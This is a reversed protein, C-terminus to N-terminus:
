EAAITPEIELFPIAAQAMVLEEDTKITLVSFGNLFTLKAVIRDRVPQSNEGIGGTFVLADIGGLSVAMQAIHKAASACFVDVAIVARPDDSNVLNRMDGTTGSIGLLGSHKWLETELMDALEATSMHPHMEALTRMIFLAAAADLSGSRTSGPLGALPSFTMSTDVSVGDLLACVSAGSGLHAVVVRRLEPTHQALWQAIYEYSHGHWGWMRVGRDHWEQAVALRQRVLPITRHFGNDLSGIQLMSPYMQRIQEIPTINHPQHLPALPILSKLFGVAEDTIIFPMTYMDGGMVIRHVVADPIGILSFIQEISNSRTVGEVDRGNEAHKWKIATGTPDFDLQGKLIFVLTGNEFIYVAYKLSSSGANVVFINSM